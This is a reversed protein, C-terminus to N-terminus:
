VSRKGAVIVIAGRLIQDECGPAGIRFFYKRIIHASHEVTALINKKM